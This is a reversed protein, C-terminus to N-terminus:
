TYGNPNKRQWRWHDRCMEDLSHSAYWDLYAKAFTPDAYCSPVDGIRRSEFSYPIPQGVAKSFAAIMQLVSYGQGTGLNISVCRDGKKLSELARVHGEALDVVHIYDRVGTGDHTAYDSGWVSLKDHRGAAVQALYPVLNNPTGVPDEGILGSDHAGCPNFYRLIRFKWDPDAASLDRLINEVILKSSGYPNYYALPHDEQIPLTQPLGYVTASSSFVLDFVKATKMASLLSLTGAVNTDYYMQPHAVSESVSKLGAFHVVADHSQSDFIEIMRDTDRIDVKHFVPKNACLHTIRELCQIKSNRLNDVITIDFGASHLALVTHSGIYGLGGTVLIRNKQTLM